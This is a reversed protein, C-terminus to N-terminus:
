DKVDQKQAASRIVKKKSITKWTSNEKPKVKINLAGESNLELPVRLLIINVDTKEKVSKTNIENISQKYKKNSEENEGKFEIEIDFSLHEGTMEGFFWLCVSMKTPVKNLVIDGSYVGILIAKGNEERRFDDCILVRDIKVKNTM